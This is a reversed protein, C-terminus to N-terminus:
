RNSLLLLPLCCNIKRGIRKMYCLLDQRHVFNQNLKKFHIFGDQHHTLIHLSPHNYMRFVNPNSCSLSNVEQGGSRTILWIDKLFAVSPFSWMPWMFMESNNARETKILFDKGLSWPSSLFRLVPEHTMLYFHVTHYARNTNEISLYQLYIINPPALYLSLINMWLDLPKATSNLVALIYVSKPNKSPHVTRFGQQQLKAMPSSSYKRRGEIRSNRYWRATCIM